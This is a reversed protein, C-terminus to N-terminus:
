QQMICIKHGFGNLIFKDGEMILDPSYDVLEELDDM